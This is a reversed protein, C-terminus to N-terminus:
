NDDGYVDLLQLRTDYMRKAMVSAFQKMISYGLTADNDCKERICQGNIAVVSTHEEARVNFFYRYPPFIWSFGVIEGPRLTRIKMSGKIPHHIEITVLGKNIVYFQDAPDGEKTLLQNPGFHANKACGSIYDVLDEGMESFFPHSMLIEKITKM